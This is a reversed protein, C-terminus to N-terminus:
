HNQLYEHIRRATQIGIGSVSEAIQEPSAKRLRAVSKFHRLLMIRREPGVGEIDDIVSDLIRQHRLDRHYSIAFRHAEDRVTQLIKLGLHHRSLIIPESRNPLFLAELKKALGVIPLDPLGVEQLAELAASLQGAGGDVVVLGPLVGQERLVRGYRRGIVERMMAFDDSGEVTRIRFRRYDKKSPKGHRLCTMGAVALTGSINSIDFCEIVEPVKPLSLAEQLSEVAQRSEDRPSLSARSFTRVGPKCAAVINAIVDRLRAAEEFKQRQALGQMEERLDTLIDLKRGLLVLKAQELRAAYEESSIKQVCPCSCMRITRALCHKYTSEDPNPTNCTRLGFYKSITRVMDRLAGGQPYPGYYLRQDERRLRTLQLRPYTESPDIVIYPYRKDDRMLINYHPAYEKILRSELLLAETESNVTIIEYEAISNILARLKPDATQRRSPQFYSALRKRLSKAKGVYIVKGSSSRFIYVGPTGPIDKLSFRKMTWDPIFVQNYKSVVTTDISDRVLSLAPKFFRRQKVTIM